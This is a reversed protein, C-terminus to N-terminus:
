ASKQYKSFDVEEKKLMEFGKDLAYDIVTNFEIGDKAIVEKVDEKEMVDKDKWIRLVIVKMNNQYEVDIHIYVYNSKHTFGYTTYTMKCFFEMEFDVEIDLDYYEHIDFERLKRFILEYVDKLTRGYDKIVLRM